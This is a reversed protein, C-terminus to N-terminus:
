QMTCVQLSDKIIIDNQFYGLEVTTEYTNEKKFLLYAANTLIDNEKLLSFKKLFLKEDEIIDKGSQKLHNIARLIKSINIDNFLQQSIPFADWSSNISQLHLDTVESV